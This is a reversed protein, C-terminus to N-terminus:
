TVWKAPSSIGDGTCRKAGFFVDRCHRLHWVEQNDIYCHKTQLCPGINDYYPPFFAKSCHWGAEAPTWKKRRKQKRTSHENFIHLHGQWGKFFAFAFGKHHTNHLRHWASLSMKRGRLCFPQLIKTATLIQSHEESLDIQSCISYFRFESDNTTSGRHRECAPANLFDNSSYPLFFISRYNCSTKPRSLYNIVIQSLFGAFANQKPAWRPFINVSEAISSRNM